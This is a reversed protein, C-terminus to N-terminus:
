SKSFYKKKRCSVDLDEASLGLVQHLPVADLQIELDKLNFNFFEHNLDQQKNDWEKEAKLQLHDSSKASNELVFNFDLGTGLRPGHGTSM